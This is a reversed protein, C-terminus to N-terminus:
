RTDKIYCGAGQCLQGQRQAAQNEEAMRATQIMTDVTLCQKETLRSGIPATTRCYFQDGHRTEVHYGLEKARKAAEAIRAESNQASGAILTAPPPKQPTAACASVLIGLLAVPLVRIRIRLRETM